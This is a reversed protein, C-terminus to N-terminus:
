FIYLWAFAMLIGIAVVWWFWGISPKTTGGGLERRKWDEYDFEDPDEIGTGDYITQDSWGTNEDSGCAPCSKANGPVDAGCSPCIFDDLSM